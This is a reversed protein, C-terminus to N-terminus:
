RPGAELAAEFEAAREPQGLYGFIGVAEQYLAALDVHVEPHARALEALADAADRYRGYAEDARRGLALFSGIRRMAGARARGYARILTPDCLGVLVDDCHAELWGYADRADDWRHADCLAQALDGLAPVLQRREAAWPPLSAYLDVVRRRLPLSEVAQSPDMLGAYRVLAAALEHALRAMGAETVLGEYLAVCRSSATVAQELADDGLAVLAAAQNGVAAAIEERVAPQGADPSEELLRIAEEYGAVAEEHRGLTRLLDARRRCSGGLMYARAADPVEQAGIAAVAEDLLALAEDTRGTRDLLGSLIWRCLVHDALSAADREIPAPLKAIARRAAQEAGPDGAQALASALKATANAIRQAGADDADGVQELIALAERCAAVTGAPDGLQELNGARRTLEAARDLPAGSRRGLLGRLKAGWGENAPGPPREPPPRNLPSAAPKRPRDNPAGRQMSFAAEIGIARCVELLKVLGELHPGLERAAGEGSTHKTVYLLYDVCMMVTLQHFLVDQNARVLAEREDPDDAKVLAMFTPMARQMIDAMTTPDFMAPGRRVAPLGTGPAPLLLRCGEAQKARCAECAAVHAMEAPTLDAALLRADPLHDM